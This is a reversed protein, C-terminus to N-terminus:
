FPKLFDHLQGEEELKGLWDVIGVKCKEKGELVLIMDEVTEEVKKGSVDIECIKDSGCASIADWLCVDLIEAALNEWLKRGKFGRDEMISKLESPDRRLVFVIHVDKTPVVDVAYHGDVIVDHESSEIIEQLRKSVKDTDAILTDRVKDVGSILREREVFDALNIYVASLKSALLRSISTKGVGPTGTVLIVRRFRECGKLM